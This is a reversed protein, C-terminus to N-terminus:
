QGIEDMCEPRMDFKEAGSWDWIQRRGDPAKTHSVAGDDPREVVYAELRFGLPRRIERGGNDLIRKAM